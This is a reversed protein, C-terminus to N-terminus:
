SSYDLTSGKAPYFSFDYGAVYKICQKPLYRVLLCVCRKPINMRSYTLPASISLEPSELSTIATGPDLYLGAYANIDVGIGFVFIFLGLFQCSPQPQSHSPIWIHPSYVSM